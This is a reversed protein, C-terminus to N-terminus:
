LSEIFSILALREDKTLQIYQQQSKKAEGGHWLIAENINRARGDHMLREHNNVVKILGVGWLPPTRWETGSALQDPRHDALEEGMDHLLLDTYPFIKQKSLQKQVSPGTTFSAVHCGICNIQEFIKEGQTIKQVNVMRRKPVALMATYFIMRELDEDNIELRKLEMASTCDAQEKSCNQDRHLSSTIGMDGLFAGSNQARLSPRNAKHGFRGIRKTKGEIIWNPRGSIGDNNKDEPDANKLLDKQPINELLGLGIVIPAVRPSILVEGLEGYNVNRISYSPHLLSYKEGDNYQYFKEQYDIYPEGEGKVTLIGQPQIQDGYVAHPEGKATSIRFLVGVGAPGSTNNPASRGDNMHCGSCSRANFTPGLGQLKDVSAGNTVWNSRFLSNGVMFSTLEKPTLNKVPLSFAQIGKADVSYEGGPLQPNAGANSAIMLTLLPFLLNNFM